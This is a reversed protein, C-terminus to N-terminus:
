GRGDAVRGARRVAARSTATAMSCPSLICFGWGQVPEAMILLGGAEMASGRAPPIMAGAVAQRRAREGVILCEEDSIPLALGNASGITVDSSWLAM